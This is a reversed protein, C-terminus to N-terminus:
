SSRGAPPSPSKAPSVTLGHVLTVFLDMDPYRGLARLHAELRRLEAAAIRNGPQLRLCARYQFIAKANEGTQAYTRALDLRFHPDKPAYTVQETLHNRAQSLRQLAQFQRMARESDTRRGARAYARSLAYWPEATQPTISTAQEMARVARVTDGTAFALMGAQYWAYDNNPDETLAARLHERAQTQLGREVLYGGFRAQADADHPRLTVAQQYLAQAQSAQGRIVLLDALDLLAPVNGPELDLAHRLAREAEAFQTTDATLAAGLLRSTEASDDGAAVARSFRAAAEKRLDAKLYMSGLARQADALSSDRYTAALLDVAAASLDGRAQLRLGEDAVRRAEPDAPQMVHPIAPQAAAKEAHHPARLRLCLAITAALALAAVAIM